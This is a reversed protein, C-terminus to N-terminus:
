WHELTVQQGLSCHAVEMKLTSTPLLLNSFNLKYKEVM